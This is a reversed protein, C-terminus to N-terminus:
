LERVRIGRFAIPKNPNFQLGLYGASSKSNSWNLAPKGNLKVELKAGQHRIWFKNWAGPVLRASDEGRVHGVIGGTPYEPHGNYIQLEYGTEHPRGEAASRLFIGSNGDAATKFEVEMEFDRYPKETRLWSYPGSDVVIAGGEVRFNAGGENIWGKLTRGDFLKVWTGAAQLTAWPLAAWPVGLPGALFYRRQM